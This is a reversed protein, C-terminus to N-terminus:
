ENMIGIPFSVIMKTGKNEQSEVTINGKHLDIISKVLSLGLGTGQVGVKKANPTRYFKQFIFPIQEKSIGIGNDEIVLTASNQSYHLSIRIEGGNPTYKISNDILNIVVQQIKNKDGDIFVESQINKYIKINKEEAVIEMDECIDNVMDSLNIRSYNLSHNSNESRAIELVTSVVNSLRIVEDLASAVVEQYDEVTQASNLSLELEGRLITLPTKLEHSADYAFNLIQNHKKQCASYLKDLSDVFFKFEQKNRIESLDFNELQSEAIRDLVEKVKKTQSHGIFSIVFLLVILTAAIIPIGIVFIKRIESFFAEFHSLSYGISINGIDCKMLFLRLKSNEFPIITFVTDGVLGSLNQRFIFKPVTDYKEIEKAYTKLEKLEEKSPLIPLDFNNLNSSKWITTNNKGYIQIFYRKPNLSISEHINKLIELHKFYNATNPSNNDELSYINLFKEVSKASLYLNNDLNDYFWNEIYRYIWYYFGALTIIVFASYIILFKNRM